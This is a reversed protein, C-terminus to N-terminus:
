PAAAAQLLAVLKQRELPKQVLAFPQAARARALVAEDTVATVLMVRTERLEPMAQVRALVQLGDIDPMMIDLLVIRPQRLGIQLVAEYGNTALVVQWGPLALAVYDALILRAAEDDEAIVITPRATQAAVETYLGEIAHLHRPYPQSKGREWANVTPFSVSLRRALEEQSYGRAQRIARLKEPLTPEM